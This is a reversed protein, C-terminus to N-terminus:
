ARVAHSSWGLVGSLRDPLGSQGRRSYCQELTFTGNSSLCLGAMAESLFTVIVSCLVEPECRARAEAGGPRATGEVLATAAARGRSSVVQAGRVGLGGM